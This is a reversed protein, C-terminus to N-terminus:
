RYLRSGVHQAFAGDTHCASVIRERLPDLENRLIARQNWDALRSMLRDVSDSKSRMLSEFDSRSEDLIRPPLSRFLLLEHVEAILGAISIEEESEIVDMLVSAIAVEVEWIASISVPGHRFGEAFVFFM